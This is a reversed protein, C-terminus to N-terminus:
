PLRGVGAMRLVYADGMVFGTGTAAALTSRVQEKRAASERLLEALLTASQEEESTVPGATYRRRTRRERVEAALVRHAAYLVLLGAQEPSLDPTTLYTDADVDVDRALGDLYAEAWADALYAAMDADSVDPFTAAFRGPPAVARKLAPVLDALDSM